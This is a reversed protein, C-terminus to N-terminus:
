EDRLSKVPNAMAALLTQISITILAISIAGLGVGVFVLWHLHIRYAFDLLWQNVLYYSLPISILVALLVLRLFDKTLLVVIKYTNAGLIKRIGVEKTRFEVAALSLGFLGMCAILIALLTLVTSVSRVKEENLYQQAFKQNLFAFNFPRGEMIQEWDTKLSKLTQNITGAQLKISMHDFGNAGDRIAVVLPTIEHHLSTFNFDEIEGVVTGWNDNQQFAIQRNVPSDWNRAKSFRQNVIFSNQVKSTNPASFGTGKRVKLGYFELFNHDVAMWSASLLTNSEEDKCKFTSTHVYSGLLQNSGTVELVGPHRLYKEKLLNYKENVSRILSIDLILEKEFGPDRSMMFRYQRHVFVTGLILTCAIVFQSIVLGKQVHNHRGAFSVNRKSLANIPKFGSLVFAPYIGALFGTSLCLGLLVFLLTSDSWWNLTLSRHILENFWSLSVEALLVAFVSSILSLTVSETIFQFILQRRQAGTAKRIGIERARKLSRAISLNMFNIGALCLTFLALIAFFYLYKGDIAQWNFYDHTFGSSMLHAQRFPQLFLALRSHADPGLHKRLYAPFQSELQEKASSNELLLYTNIFNRGWSRLYKRSTDQTITSISMLGDFQIQSNDPVDELIGTITMVRGREDVVSQGIPDASRFFQTAVKETIVLSGPQRLVEDKSGASLPFDFINFFSTDVAVLEQLFFTRDETRCLNEGQSLLRAFSKIEPYDATLTEGMLPMSATIKEADSQGPNRELCLRYIQKAKRHFDDFGLEYRILSFVLISMAIGIGLGAIHILSVVRHQFLGRVIIKLYNQIM